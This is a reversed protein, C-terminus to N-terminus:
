IRTESFSSPSTTLTGLLCNQAAGLAVVTTSATPALQASNLVLIRHAVGDGGRGGILLGTRRDLRVGQDDAGTRDSQEGDKLQAEDVDLRVDDVNEVLDAPLAGFEIGLLRDVVNGGQGLHRALAKGIAQHFLDFREAGVNWRPWRM